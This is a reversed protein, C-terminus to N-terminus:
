RCTHTHTHTYLVHIHKHIHRHIYIHIYTHIYTHKNQKYRVYTHIYGLYAHTHIHTHARARACTRIYSLSDFLNDNQRHLNQLRRVAFGLSKRLLQTSPIIAVHRHWTYNSIHKDVLRWEVHRSRKRNEGNYLLSSQNTTALLCKNLRRFNIPSYKTLTISVTHSLVPRKQEVFVRTRM